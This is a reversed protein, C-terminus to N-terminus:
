KEAEAGLTRLVGLALGVVVLFVGLDFALASTLKVEGLVPPHFIVYASELYQDGAFWPVVGTVAATVLGLGLLLGPDVPVASRLEDRGGAVYRLTFAAGVVLGGVFGGGPQNHGAFLLYLGLVLVTHFVVRVATELIVSHQHVSLDRAGPRPGLHDHDRPGDARTGSAAPEPLVSV